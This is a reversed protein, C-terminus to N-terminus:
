KRSSGASEGRAIKVGDRRQIIDTEGDPWLLDQFAKMAGDRHQPLRWVYGGVIKHGHVTQDFM